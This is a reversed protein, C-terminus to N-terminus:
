NSGAETLAPNQRYHKAPQPTWHDAEFEAPPVLGIKGHLRRHNFWDVYEAITIEVDVVSKWDGKPQTVPNHICEAKFPPNPAEAM